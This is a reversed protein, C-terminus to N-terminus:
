REEQTEPEHSGLDRDEHLVAEARDSETDLIDDGNRYASEFMADTSEDLSAEKAQRVADPAGNMRDSQDDSRYQGYTKTIWDERLLDEREKEGLEPSSRHCETEFEKRANEHQKELFKIYSLDPAPQSQEVRVAEALGRCRDALLNRRYLEPGDIPFPINQGYADMQAQYLDQLREDPEKPFKDTGDRQERRVAEEFSRAEDGRLITRSEMEKIDREKDALFSLEAMERRESEPYAPYQKALEDDSLRAPDVRQITKGDALHVVYRSEMYHIYHNPQEADVIFASQGARVHTALLDADREKKIFELRAANTVCNRGRLRAKSLALITRAKEADEARCAITHRSRDFYLCPKKGDPFEMRTSLLTDKVMDMQLNTMGEGGFEMLSTHDSAALLDTEREALTIEGTRILGAQIAKELMPIQHQAVVLYAIDPNDPNPLIACPIVRKDLYRKSEKALDQASANGCSHIPVTCVPLAQGRFHPGNEADAQVNELDRAADQYGSKLKELESQEKEDAYRKAYWDIASSMTVVFAKVIEFSIQASRQAYSIFTSVADKASSPNTVGM